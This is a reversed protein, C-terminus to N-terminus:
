RVVLNWDPHGVQDLWRVFWPTAGGPGGLYWVAAQGSPRHQLALDVSGDRDFDGMGAVTWGLPGDRSIWAWGVYTTGSPGGYYWTTIQKTTDHQWLLDAAGDRNVDGVGVLTWDPLSEPVLYQWRLQETGDLGGMFWVIVQRTADHQWLLDAHGDRNLDGVAALRWGAVDARTVWQWRLLRSDELYWVILQRTASHQWLLDPFGDRNFDGSAVIRWGTWTDASIWRWAQQSAGGTGGMLWTVVQGTTRHQWVVDGVGDGNFDSPRRQRAGLTSLIGGLLHQQFRADQWVEPRHGLATYFVRGRGHRRTWALAFDNDTRHVGPASLNVTSTDLRLLVRVDSRSWSRFQYIEDDIVFSAGLPQTSSHTGDEVIVGVPQTWPHGDFYGGILAGYQPWDYFTDTASHIGIFGRGSAVFDLLAQKQTASWPLSGSTFFAVADYSALETPTLASVDRMVTVTFAGSSTGLQTLVTEALPLVPHVFGASHTVYLLRKLAPQAQVAAPSLNGALALAVVYRLLRRPAPDPAPDQPPRRPRVSDLM